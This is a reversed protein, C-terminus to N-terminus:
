EGERSKRIHAYNLGAVFLSGGILNGTLALGISRAVIGLPFQSSILSATFLEAAGAILAQLLEEPDRRNLLGLTIDHLIALSFAMAGTPGAAAFVFFRALVSQRPM